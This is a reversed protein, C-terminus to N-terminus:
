IEASITEYFRSWSTKRATALVLPSAKFANAELTISTVPLHTPTQM